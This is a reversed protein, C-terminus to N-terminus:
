RSSCRGVIWSRLSDGLDRLVDRVLDRHIPPFLAILWERYLAPHLSLYIGM